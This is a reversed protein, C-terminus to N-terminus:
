TYREKQALVSSYREKERIQFAGRLGLNIISRVIVTPKIIITPRDPLYESAAPNCISRRWFQFVYVSFLSPHDTPSPLQGISGFASM